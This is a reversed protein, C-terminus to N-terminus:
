AGNVKKMEQKTEEAGSTMEEERQPKGEHNWCGKQVPLLGYEAKFGEQVAQNLQRHEDLKNTESSTNEKELQIIQM